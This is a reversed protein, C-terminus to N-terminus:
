CIGMASRYAFRNKGSIEGLWLCYNKAMQWPINVPYKGTTLKPHQRYLASTTLKEGGALKVYDHYDENTVKYKGIMFDDLLVKHLLKDDSNISFPIKEGVLPGFDGMLFEGGKVLVMNDLSRKVVKQSQQKNETSQNNDCGVLVISLFSLLLHSYRM